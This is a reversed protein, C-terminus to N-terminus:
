RGNGRSIVHSIKRNWLCAMVHGFDAEGSSTPLRYAWHAAPVGEVLPHYKIRKIVVPDYIEDADLDVDAAIATMLGGVLTIYDPDTVIGGNSWVEAIGPISVRGPRVGRTDLKKIITICDHPPLMAGGGTGAGAIADEFFDTLSFLNIVKLSVNQMDPTQVANIKDLMGDTETFGNFLSEAASALAVGNYFWNTLLPEITGAQRQELIVHYLDNIAM